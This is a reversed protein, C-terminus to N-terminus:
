GPKQAFGLIGIALEACASARQDAPTAKATASSSRRPLCQPRPRRHERELQGGLQRPERLALGRERREVLVRRPDFRAAVDNGRGERERAMPTRFHLLRVGRHALM